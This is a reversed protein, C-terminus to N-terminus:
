LHSITIESGDLSIYTDASTTMLRGGLGDDHDNEDYAKDEHV